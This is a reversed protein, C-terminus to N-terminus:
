GAPTVSTQWSVAADGNLREILHELVVSGFDANMHTRDHEPFHEPSGADGVPFLPAQYTYGPLTFVGGRITSPPQPLIAAGRKHLGANTAEIVSLYDFHDAHDDEASACFPTHAVLVPVKSLKRIRSLVKAAVSARFAAACAYGFAEGGSGQFGLLPEVHFNLGYLVISDFAGPEITPTGIALSIRHRAHPLSNTLVGGEVRFYAAGYMGIAAISLDIDSHTDRLRRWGHTLCIAHSNGLILVRM